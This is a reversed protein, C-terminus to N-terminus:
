QWIYPTQGDKDRKNVDARHDLLLRAHDLVYDELFIWHELLIHLPTKGNNDQPHVDAKHELLVQAVELDSAHEALLHLPCKLTNDRANADAGHSLLIKVISVLNRESRSLVELLITKGTTKDQVDVSAGHKLLLEAVEVYDKSLAAYLPFNYRGYIANVHKLHQSALHEVLDYFGCLASYYVPNPKPKPALSTESNPFLFWYFDSDIDYIGIWATLHPKDSDFLIKMGEKVCSMVNEFRVHEVWHQAAYGALPSGTESEEHAHDDLHILSGLCAQTLTTHASAPRIHYACFDGLRNSLLFEKVSFHSFQVVQSGFHGSYPSCWDDDTIIVLSSCTSLVAQTKDDLRWAARYKPIGGPAADFEFALLEALDEVRLPRIAVALCQLM